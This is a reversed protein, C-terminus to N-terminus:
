HAVDLKNLTFYYRSLFYITCDRLVPSRLRRVVEGKAEVSSDGSTKLRQVGSQLARSAQERVWRDQSNELMRLL